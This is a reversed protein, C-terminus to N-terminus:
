TTEPHSDRMAGSPLHSPNAGLEAPHLAARIGHEAKATSAQRFACPFGQLCATHIVIVRPM